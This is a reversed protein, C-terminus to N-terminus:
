PDGVIGRCLTVLHGSIGGELVQCTDTGRAGARIMRESIRGAGMAKRCVQNSVAVM